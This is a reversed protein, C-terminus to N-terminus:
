LPVSPRQSLSPESSLSPGASAVPVDSVVEGPSASVSPGESSGEGATPIDSVIQEADGDTPVSSPAFSLSTPEESGDISTPGESVSPAPSDSPADSIIFEVETPENSLSPEESDDGGTTPVQSLSPAPSDSPTDSIIFEAESPENSLSPEASDDGGTTPVQSVSPEPSVSPLTSGDGLTPENSGDGLTPENSGDGLTPEESSGSPAESLSPSLVPPTPADSEDISTPENSISPQASDATSDSSPSLSPTSTPPFTLIGPPIDDTPSSSPATSDGIQSPPLSDGPRSPPASNSPAGEPSFSASPVPTATPASPVGEATPQSTPSSTFDAPLEMVEGSAAINTLKGVDRLEQVVQFWRVEFDSTTPPGFDNGFVPCQCESDPDFGTAGQLKRMLEDMQFLTMDQSCGEGRCTGTVAFVYLFVKPEDPDSVLVIEALTATRFFPSDCRNAQLGNYVLVFNEELTAREEDSVAERDGFFEISVLTMFEEVVVSCSEDAVETVKIVCDVAVGGRRYQRFQQFERIEADYAARFEDETPARYEPNSSDCGCSEEEGGGKGESEKKSSKSKSEKKSEKKSSKAKRRQQRELPIQGTLQGDSAILQRMSGQEPPSFLTITEADCGRCVATVLYRLSYQAGGRKILIEENSNVQIKVDIISRFQDDCMDASLSNYSNRFALQLSDWNIRTIDSADDDFGDFDVLVESEFEVLPGPCGGSGGGKGKGKGKGSELDRDGEAAIPSLVNFALLATLTLYVWRSFIM